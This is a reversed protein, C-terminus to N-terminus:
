NRNSERYEASGTKDDINVLIFNYTEPKGYTFPAKPNYIVQWFSSFHSGGAQPYFVLTPPLYTELNKSHDTAVKKAIAIVQDESLRTTALQHLHFFQRYAAMTPMTLMIQFCLYFPLLLTAFVVWSKRNCFSRAAPFLTCVTLTIILLPTWVLVLFVAFFIPFSILTLIGNLTNDAQLASLKSM